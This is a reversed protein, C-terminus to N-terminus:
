ALTRPCEEQNVIVFLINIGVRPGFVDINRNMEETCVVVDCKKGFGSELADAV